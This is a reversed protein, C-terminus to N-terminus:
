LFFSGPGGQCIPREEPYAPPLRVERVIVTQLIYLGVKLVKKLRTNASELDINQFYKERYTNKTINLNNLMNNADSM